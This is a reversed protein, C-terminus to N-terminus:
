TQASRAVTQGDVIFKRLPKATSSLNECFKALYNVMGLLRQLDEKSAPEPFARIAEIKEPDPKLHHHSIIHGIWPIEPQLFKCKTANLKLNVQACRDFVAKLRDDHEERTEGWVFFDDLYIEVGSLDGFLQIMTQQYVEPASCIGFPLRLFRYRGFPTAFTTVFSSEESLPIQLFGSTADLTSFFKAKGIRAFLEQATPVPYHQRKIVKNLDLPDLCIRVDGGGKQVALMPNVWETPETVKCILKLQEMNDLKKKVLDRIKFPVRRPPRVVPVYNDKL